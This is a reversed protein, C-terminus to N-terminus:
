KSGSGLLTVGVAFSYWIKDNYIWGKGDDGPVRDFGMMFGIQFTDGLELVAGLSATLALAQKEGNMASPATGQRITVTATGVTIIPAVLHYNQTHSLRWRQGFMGGLTLGTDLQTNQKAIARRLKFPVIVNLGYTYDTAGVYYVKTVGNSASLDDFTAKPVCFVKENQDSTLWFFSPPDKKSSQQDSSQRDSTWESANSSVMQTKLNAWDANSKKYQDDIGKNAIIPDFRVLQYTNTDDAGDADGAGGSAPGAGASGASGGSSSGAQTGKGTGDKAGTNSPKKGPDRHVRLAHFTLGANAIYATGKCSESMPDYETVKQPVAFTLAFADDNGQKEQTQPADGKNSGPSSNSTSNSSSSTDNALAASAAIASALLVTIVRKM